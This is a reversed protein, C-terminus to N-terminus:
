ILIIIYRIKKKSIILDLTTKDINTANGNTIIRFIIEFKELEFFINIDM